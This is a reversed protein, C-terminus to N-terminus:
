VASCDSRTVVVAPPGHSGIRAAGDFTFAQADGQLAQPLNPRKSGGYAIGVTVPLRRGTPVEVAVGIWGSVVGVDAEVVGGSGAVLTPGTDLVSGGATVETEGDLALTSGPDPVAVLLLEPETAVTVVDAGGVTEVAAAARVPM